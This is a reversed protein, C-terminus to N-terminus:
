RRGPRAATVVGLATSSARPRVPHPPRGPSVGTAWLDAVAEERADMGPCRAAGDVGTVMGPAAPRAPGPGGRGAAWLAEGAPDCRRLVGFAGATALAELQALPSRRGPPGPGGPRRVPRGRRRDARGPRRRHRAGVGLGLRVAPGGRGWTAPRAPAAGAPGSGRGPRGAHSWPPRPRGGANLDPTRVEVGHRRADQSWRHAALLLGDAPRQAARRLVGGPLLAQAVVSAYVLYAFSVSHSEPFGFNAFAALKDYITTPWRAPSAGSPWATTSAARAAAGDARPASRAWRRACSTPRPRPSAPWTSPWRCSSSRSCRCASPRAGAVARLLPHLYTVPEQGNRRRIYPHVSGGQIPGPRILAVEVVLDYFTAPSCGPCRPWRPGARWRSCASRTPRPLAHRLRRGGPPHDALDVEVGHHTARRPRGRLAAGHAHGLGLLDFKVLGSRRATTRTGSCCAHPEGDAGVRGPVGRRGAPRLHVMGGSHIGLHRPLDSSRRRGARARRRPRDRRRAAGDGAVPCAAGATSRSPGPTRSARPSARAGQGHRAGGLQARYTIVNAVQAAHDRGYRDYVYQIVEERRDSEIDIDIDPPGDREPRSSGSSCCASACRTPTPSASRTASRRTPRRAGARATSTRARRCFTSSTGSWSSTAPSASSSSSTSSTTSRARVGRAGARRRAPRLPARRGREALRRLWRWRPTATPARSRRCSPRSSRAPRVRVGPRARRGARGRRPLPRLPPGARRGLAPPRRGGAPCGATSRTSAAGPGCRPWRPPWGAGPRAHRLPRQQHRRRRRGAASPWSPWRTTATGTSRTATTGCSSPWTSARRVRRGAPRLERPRRPRARPRGARAPVTGRAAGPSCWGLPRAARGAAEALEALTSGPRARRGRWSPRPQHRRGAPRLGDPGRALVLLHDGTRPRARGTQPGPLTRPDARRRVGHAPRLARAAEAFRVVGYFGDHDTLALAELGLRAAEEALEEPHSAGDLFSFNSHCHLEAYPMAGVPPGAGAAARLGARKRSWAPSDGGDGPHAPERHRRALPDRAWWAAASGQALDPGPGQARGGHSGIPRPSEASDDPHGEPTPAAAGGPRDSLRREIESWPVDPNNFGVDPPYRVGTRYAM